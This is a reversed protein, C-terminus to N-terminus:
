EVVLEVADCKLLTKFGNQTASQLLFHGTQFSTDQWVSVNKELWIFNVLEDQNGIEFSQRQETPIDILNIM